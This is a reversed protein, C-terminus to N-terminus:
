MLWPGGACQDAIRDFEIMYTTTKDDTVMRAQTGFPATSIKHAALYGVADDLREGFVDPSLERYSEDLARQVVTTPASSFEAFATKFGTATLAM